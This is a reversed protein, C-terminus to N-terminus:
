AKNDLADYYFDLTKGHMLEATLFINEPV